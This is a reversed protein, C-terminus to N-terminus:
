NASGSNEHEGDGFPLRASNLLLRGIPDLLGSTNDIMIISVVRIGYAYICPGEIVVWYKGIRGM